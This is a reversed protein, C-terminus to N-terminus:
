APREGLEVPWVALLQEPTQAADIEPHRTVDRLGKKRAAIDARKGPDGSEMARMLEVDLAALKPARHRRLNDKHIERCKGMDHEVVGAGAKWANRFARNAPIASEDVVQVDTADAPIDKAIVRAIWEGETEAWVAIAGAVPWLNLIHHVEVKGNPDPIVMPEPDKKIFFNSVRELVAQLGNKPVSSHESPAPLYEAHVVTGDDLRISKALRFGESPAM